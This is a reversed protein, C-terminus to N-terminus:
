EEWFATWVGCGQGRRFAVRLAPPCYLSPALGAAELEGDFVLRLCLDGRTRDLTARIQDAQDRSLCVASFAQAIAAQVCQGTKHDVGLEKLRGSLRQQLDALNELDCTTVLEALM